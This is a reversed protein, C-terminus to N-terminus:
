DPTSQVQCVLVASSGGRDDLYSEIPPSSGVRRSYHRMKYKRFADRDLQLGAAAVVRDVSVSKAFTTVYMANADGIMGNIELFRVPLGLITLGPTAAIRGGASELDGDRGERAFGLSRLVALDHAREARGAPTGHAKRAAAIPNEDFDCTFAKLYKDPLGKAAGAPETAGAEDNRLDSPGAGGVTTAVEKRSQSGAPSCAALVMMCALLMKMDPRGTM